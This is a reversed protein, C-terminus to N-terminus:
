ISRRDTDILGVLVTIDDIKPGKSAKAALDMALTNIRGCRVRALIASEDVNDFLGDTGMILVDNQRVGIQYRDADSPLDKQGGKVKRGLYYPSNSSHFQRSSKLILSGDRVLMFGSDGLNAALIYDPTLTAILATSGGLLDNHAYASSLIEVPDRIGTLALLKSERMLREAFPRPNIGLSHYGGVGDAVGMANGVDSIFYADDGGHRRKMPSPINASSCLLRYM